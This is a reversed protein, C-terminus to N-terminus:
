GEYMYSNKHFEHIGLPVINLDRGGFKVWILHYHPFYPHLNMFAGQNESHWNACCDYKSSLKYLVGIGFKM